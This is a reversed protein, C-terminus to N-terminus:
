AGEPKRPRQAFLWRHGECDMARYMPGGESEAPENVIVAGRARAHAFHEPLDDVYVLLQSYFAPAERASAFGFSPFADALMVKAGALEIEAHVVGGDPSEYREKEEFGFADCLFAIAAAADDYALMPVVGQGSM